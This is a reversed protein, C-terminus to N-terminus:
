TKDVVRRGHTLTVPEGRENIEHWRDRWPGRLTLVYTTGVSHVQHFDSRRTILVKGPRHTRRRGDVFREELHGPGLVLSVCNFAHDHYAPRTGPMFKLLALTAFRKSELYWAWVSSKPGGDKGFFVSM